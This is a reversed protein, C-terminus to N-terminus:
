PFTNRFRELQTQDGVMVLHAEPVLVTEGDPRAVFGSPTQLAIVNLGTKATIAAQALPQGAVSAPVPLHHLEVSEGLVVIEHGRLAAFISEVGLATHSLALDAGARRIANMNRGHTIRSVIRIEPALKRCYIALYINMADDNTTLLVSPADMLGAESMVELEAADGVCLRDPLDGIVAQLAPNKEIMHVRAGRDRLARTAARGVVGGGIVLVPNMNVDFEALLDDLAAMRGPTGIVVPVSYSRLLSEPDAPRFRAHELVGIMMRAVAKPLEGLRRNAFPTKHVPFESVLLDGFEGITHTQARGANVRAALHAGLDHKLAFVRSAGALQLIDISALSEVTAVIPVRPATERVTLTVNTNVTDRGNAVVLGASGVGLREYVSQDEVSGTLVSIGEDEMTSARAPDTEVLYYPIEHVALAEALPRALDDNHTIIVHGSIRAPVRKKELWPAYFFRIFAFPFVVFLLVIGSTLVLLTFARGLATTFVVDGLGLTTMTSITWYLGTLWDTEVGEVSTMIVVFAASYVIVIAAIFALYGRLTRLDRRSRLLHLPAVPSDTRDADTM